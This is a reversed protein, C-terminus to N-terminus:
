PKIVYVRDDITVAYTLTSIGDTPSNPTESEPATNSLAVVFQDSACDVVDEVLYDMWDNIKNFIVM